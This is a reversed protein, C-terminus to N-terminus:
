PKDGAGSRWGASVPGATNVMCLAMQDPIVYYWLDLVIVVTRVIFPMLLSVCRNLLGFLMNRGVNRSRQLQVPRQKSRVELNM